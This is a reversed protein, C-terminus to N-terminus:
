RATVRRARLFPGLGRAILYCTFLLWARGLSRLNRRKALAILLPVAAASALLAAAASWWWRTDFALALGVTTLAAALLAVYCLPLFLSIFESAWARRKWASRFNGRSRWMERRFFEALSKSEGLHLVPTRFEQRLEGIAALRCSLDSDECTTLSEDFGGIATFSARSVIFNFAPLWAVPRWTSIPSPSVTAVWLREVWPADAPASAQVAGVAVVRRDSFHAIAQGLWGEPLVCDADIFAILDSDGAAAGVNRARSVNGPAIQIVKAGCQAAIKATGDTSNNDVVIMSTTLNEHEAGLQAQISQLCRLLHREENHAPVVFMVTTSAPSEKTALSSLPNTQSLKM